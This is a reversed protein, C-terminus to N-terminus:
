TTAQPWVSMVLSITVKKYFRQVDWFRLKYFLSGNSLISLLPSLINPLLITKYESLFIFIQLVSNFCVATMKLILVNYTVTNQLTLIHWIWYDQFSLSINRYLIHDTLYKSFSHFLRYTFISKSRWTTSAMCDDWNKVGAPGNDIEQLSHAGGVRHVPAYINSM